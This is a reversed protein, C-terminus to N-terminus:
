QREPAEEDEEDRANNHFHISQNVQVFNDRQPPEMDSDGNRACCYYRILNMVVLVMFELGIMIIAFWNAVLEEAVKTQPALEQCAHQCLFPLKITLSAIEM